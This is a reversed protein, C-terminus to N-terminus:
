KNERSLPLCSQEPVGLKAMFGKFPPEDQQSQTNSGTGSQLASLNAILEQTQHGLGLKNEQSNQNNGRQNWKNHRNGSGWNNSSGVNRQGFRSRRENGGSHGQNNRQDAIRKRCVNSYHGPKGCYYCTDRRSKKKVGGQLNQKKNSRSKRSSTNSGKAQSFKATPTSSSQPNHPNSRRSVEAQFANVINNFSADTLHSVM